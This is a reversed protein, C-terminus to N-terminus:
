KLTKGKNKELNVKKIVQFDISLGGGRCSGELFLEDMLVAPFIIAFIKINM